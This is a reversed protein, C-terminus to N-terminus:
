RATRSRIPNYLKCIKCRALVEKVRGLPVDLGEAMLRERVALIGKHILSEHIRQISKEEEIVTNVEVAHRRSLADVHAMEEGKKYEVIFSYTQIREM